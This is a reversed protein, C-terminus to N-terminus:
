HTLTLLGKFSTTANLTGTATIKSAGVSGIYTKNFTVTSPTSKSGNTWPLNPIEGGLWGGYPSPHPGSANLEDGIIELYYSTGYSAWGYPGWWLETSGSCKMHQGALGTLFGGGANTEFFGGPFTCTKPSGGDKNLTLTGSWIMGENNPSFRAEVSALASSVGVSMMVGIVSLAIALARRSRKSAFM